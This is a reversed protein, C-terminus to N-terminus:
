QRGMGDRIVFKKNNTKEPCRKRQNKQCCAGVTAVPHNMEISNIKNEAPEEEAGPEAGPEAGTEAGPAVGEVRLILLARLYM